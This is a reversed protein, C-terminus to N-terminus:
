KDILNSKRYGYGFYIVLGIILWILFMIWNSIGLETMLYLNTLIGLVPLLSFSQLFSAIALGLWVLWLVILLPKETLHEVFGGQSYTWALAAVMLVGVTYKGNVHPVKFKSPTKHKDLYLIGACVIIFAFLTGVSTLDTVFKMNMFLSPIAVLVGTLITSFSPTKYKPHIKGFSKPLLGDRSMTMWIRPQGIQYALLASTMAVVASVAIIGSLSSLFSKQWGVANQSVSKFVYALPDDVKLEKHSVMGNLVLAITVYLITCIILSYIISRPLDRQPNQCEEATTSVSDFGIFSFFVASVGLLVGNMGNPAFPEWNEPNVYFAGIIIVALIVIVKFLVLANGTTRSEKIGIYALVTIFVTVLAAPINMLVKFGGIMPATRFAEEQSVLRPNPVGGAKIVEKFENFGDRASIFDTALYEPFHIGFRELMEMFYGSWGIAIVMNSVAYELILAWGIIWALLEGFSVYTYTYASGSVPITSAFQAYCLGTFACAFAIFVFLLSVAAGGDYSANGITSFIGGGIIAAIGFSTLDKVSLVKAMSGHGDEGTKIDNLVQSVSKKRFLSNSM